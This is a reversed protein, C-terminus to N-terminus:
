MCKKKCLWRQLSFLQVHRLVPVKKLALAHQSQAMRSSPGEWCFARRGGGAHGARFPSPRLGPLDRRGLLLAPGPASHLLRLHGGPIHSLFPTLHAGAHLAVTMQTTFIDGRQFWVSAVEGSRADSLGTTAVEGSGATGEARGPSPASAELVHHSCSGAPRRPRCM